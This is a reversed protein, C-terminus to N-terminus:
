VDDDGKYKVFVSDIDKLLYRVDCDHFEFNIMRTDVSSEVVFKKIVTKLEYQLQEFRVKNTVLHVQRTKEKEQELEEKSYLPNLSCCSLLRMPTSDCMNCAKLFQNVIEKETTTM